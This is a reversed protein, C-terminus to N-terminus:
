DVWILSLFLSAWVEAPNHLVMFVDAWMSGRGESRNAGPGRTYRIYMRSAMSPPIWVHLRVDVFVFVNAFIHCLCLGTCVCVGM